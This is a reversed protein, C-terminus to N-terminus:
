LLIVWSTREGALYIRGIMGSPDVVAEGPKIGHSSGADLIMTELFPRNGRGIVHSLVSHIDPQPVVHLLAQYRKVQAATVVALNRWQKLRPNEQKLALNEQYVRVVEGAWGMWRNVALVPTNATSLLPAMWDTIRMRARDFLGNEAKGLLVVVVALALVIALPLQANSRRAIKWTVNAM